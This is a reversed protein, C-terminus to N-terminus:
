KLRYSPNNDLDANFGANLDAGAGRLHRIVRLAVPESFVLGMHGVASVPVNEAWALVSSEAPYVLDDNLTYISLTAPRGVNVAEAAELALLWASQDRMQGANTGFGLRGLETGHHPSGLTVLRAIRSSHSTAGERALYARAVLGGMSHAVIMVRSAGTEACIAEIRTDLKPVLADISGFLPTLSITYIPGLGAAALRKRFKVWLGRNCVFGHVLLIPVGDKRGCPDPGLALSEFPQSWNFCIFRAALENALAAMSNGWPLSRGDRWRLGSTFIFSVLAHSLRWAIAILLVVSAIAGASVGRANLAYCLWGYLIIETLLLSRLIAQLTM